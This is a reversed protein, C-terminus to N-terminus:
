NWKTIKHLAAQHRDPWRGPSAQKVSRTDSACKVSCNKRIWIAGHFFVRWYFSFRVGLERQHRVIERALQPKTRFEVEEDPVGAKRCRQPDTTWSEPLYLRADVPVARRGACLVGFVAVQSNEVKGLRGNYQRAVGVSMKGKKEFATEDILLCSDPMAGLAQDAQEAVRDMVARASWPADTIFQQLTQYDADPVAEEMREMNARETQALGCLYTFASSCHNHTAVKFM